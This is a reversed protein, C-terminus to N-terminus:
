EFRKITYNSLGLDLVTKEAKAKDEWSYFNLVWECNPCVSIAVEKLYPLDIDNYSLGMVCVGKISNLSAFFSENSEIISLPSKEWENMTSIVVSYTNQYPFLIKDNSYPEDSDRPNSHGIIFGEGTNLRSGHIHLVQKQPIGYATELTETYNFSLYKAVTPLQLDSEIGCIEISRLWEDFAERFESMVSGFFLPICDEIGAQWQGTHEYKFDEDNQPECFETIVEEDYEGLSEEIHSWFKRKHSLFIDMLGVLRSNKNKCLWEEFDSYGSEICHHLDFGNGLVYLRESELTRHCPFLDMYFDIVIGCIEYRWSYELESDSHIWCDDLVNNLYDFACGGVRV